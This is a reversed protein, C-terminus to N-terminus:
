ANVALLYTTWGFMGGDFLLAGTGAGDVGEQALLVLDLLTHVGLFFFAFWLYLTM